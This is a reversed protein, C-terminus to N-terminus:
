KCKLGTPLYVAKIIPCYTKLITKIIRWDTSQRMEAEFTLFENEYNPTKSRFTGGLEVFIDLDSKNKAVGIVRSGYFHVDKINGIICTNLLTRYVRTNISKLNQEINEYQSLNTLNKSKATLSEVRSDCGALFSNAKKCDFTILSM